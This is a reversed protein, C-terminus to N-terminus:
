TCKTLDYNNKTICLYKEITNKLDSPYESVDYGKTPVTFTLFYYAFSEAVFENINKYAYDRLPRASARLLRYKNYLNKIDSQNAIAQNGGTTYYNSTIPKPHNIGYGYYFDISHGLEHTLVYYKDMWDDGYSSLVDLTRSLPYDNVDKSYNVGLINGGGGWVNLFTKRTLINIKTGLFYYPMKQYIDDVIKKYTNIVDQSCGKEFDVITNNAVIYTEQIEYVMKKNGYRVNNYNPYLTMNKDFDYEQGQFYNNLASTVSTKESYGELQYGKKNFLPMKIKCSVDENYALCNVKDKELYDVNNQNITVVIDRYSIAYLNQNNNILVRDGPKYKAEKDDKNLSYGLVVGDDRQVKPLTIVCGNISRKCKIKSKSITSAGNLHFTITHAKFTAYRYIIIGCVIVVGIVLITIILNLFRNM